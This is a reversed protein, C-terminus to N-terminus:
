GDKKKKLNGVNKTEIHANWMFINMFCIVPLKSKQSTNKLVTKTDQWYTTYKNVRSSKMQILPLTKKFNKHIGLFTRQMDVFVLLLINVLFKLILLRVFM